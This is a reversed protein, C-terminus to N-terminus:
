HIVPQIHIYCRVETYRFIDTNLSYCLESHCNNLAYCLDLINLVFQQSYEYELTLLVLSHFVNIIGLKM